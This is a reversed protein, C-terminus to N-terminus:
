VVNKLNDIYQGTVNQTQSWIVLFEKNWSSPHPLPLDIPPSPCPPSLHDWKQVGLDIEDLNLQKM